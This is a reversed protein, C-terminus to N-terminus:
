ALRPFFTCTDYWRGEVTMFSRVAMIENPTYQDSSVQGGRICQHIAVAEYQFGNSNPYNFGGTAEVTAPPDPLPFDHLTTTTNGAPFELAHRSFGHSACRSWAVIALLVQVFHSRRSAVVEIQTPMCTDVVRRSLLANWVRPNRAVRVPHLSQSRMEVIFAM